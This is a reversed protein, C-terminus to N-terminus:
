VRRSIFGGLGKKLIPKLSDGIIEVNRTLLGKVEEYERSVEALEEPTAGKMVEFLDEMEKDIGEVDFPNLLREKLYTLKERMLELRSNEM